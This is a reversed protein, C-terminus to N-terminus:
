YSKIILMLSFFAALGVLLAVVFNILKNIDYFSTIASHLKKRIKIILQLKM